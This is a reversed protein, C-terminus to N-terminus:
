AGVTLQSKEHCDLISQWSAEVLQEIIQETFILENFPNADMVCKVSALSLAGLLYCPLERFFGQEKGLAFFNELQAMQQQTWLYDDQTFFPSRQYLEKFLMVPRHLLLGNFANLWLQRYTQFSIRGTDVDTLLIAAQKQISLRYLSRILGEKNPFYRYLSGISVGSRHAIMQMTTGHLGQEVFLSLASTMIQESKPM